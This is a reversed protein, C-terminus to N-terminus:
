GLPGQLVQDVYTDPSAEITQPWVPDVRRREAAPRPRGDWGVQEMCHYLQILHGDPGILHAAYDIGPHLEFPISDILRLGKERLFLVADKLQKYTAVEIGISMLTTAANLGLERRLALPYLAPTHRLYLTRFAAEDGSLTVRRLLDADDTM